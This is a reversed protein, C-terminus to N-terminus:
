FNDDMYNDLFKTIAKYPLNMGEGKNNTLYCNKKDYYSLYYKGVMLFIAKSDSAYKAKM